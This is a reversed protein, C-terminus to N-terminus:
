KLKGSLGSNPGMPLGFATDVGVHIRLDRLLQEPDLVNGIVFESESRPNESYRARYIEIKKNEEIAKICLARLYFRNFEGEAFLIAANEPVKVQSIGKKTKREESEKFCRNRRLSEALTVEDGTKIAEQLLNLYVREGTTSFRKSLYLNSRSIDYDVEQLMLARVNDELNLFNFKMTHYNYKTVINSM